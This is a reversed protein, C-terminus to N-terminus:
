IIRQCSIGNLEFFKIFDHTFEPVSIRRIIGSPQSIQYFSKVAIIVLEQAATELAIQFQYIIAEKAEANYM